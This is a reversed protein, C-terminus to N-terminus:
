PQGGVGLLEGAVYAALVVLVLVALVVCTRYALLLWADWRSM